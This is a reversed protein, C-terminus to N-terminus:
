LVNSRTRDDGATACANKVVSLSSSAACARVKVPLTMMELSLGM